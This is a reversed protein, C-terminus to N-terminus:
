LLSLSGNGWVQVVPIAPILAKAAAATRTRALREAFKPHELREPLVSLDVHIHSATEGYYSEPLPLSPVWVMVDVGEAAAEDLQDDLHAKGM